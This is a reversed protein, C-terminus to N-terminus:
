PQSITDKENAVVYLTVADIHEEESDVIVTFEGDELKTVKVKEGVITLNESPYNTAIPYLHNPHNRYLVNLEPQIIGVCHAQAVASTFILFLSM